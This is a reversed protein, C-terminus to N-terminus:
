RAKATLCRCCVTPALLRRGDSVLPLWLTRPIRVNRGRLALVRVRMKRMQTLACVDSFSRATASSGFGRGLYPM